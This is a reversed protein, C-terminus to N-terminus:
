LLRFLFALIVRIKLGMRMRLRWVLTTSLMVIGLESVADFISILEWRLFKVTLMCERYTPSLFVQGSCRDPSPLMLERSNCRAWLGLVSALCWLGVLGIGIQEVISLHMIDFPDQSVECAVRHRRMDQSFLRRILSIVSIKSLSLAVILGIRSAFAAQAARCCTTLLSQPLHFRGLSITRFGDRVEGAQLLQM